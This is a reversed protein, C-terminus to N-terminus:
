LLAGDALAASKAIRVRPSAYPIKKVPKQASNQSNACFGKTPFLFKLESNRIAFFHV